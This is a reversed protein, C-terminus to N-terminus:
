EKESFYLKWGSQQPSCWRGIGRLYMGAEDMGATLSPLCLGMVELAADATNRLRDPQYPYLMHYLKLEGRDGQQNLGLLFPHYGLAALAGATEMDLVPGKGGCIRWVDEVPPLLVEPPPFRGHRDNGSRLAYYTKVTTAAGDELEAGLQIMTGDATGLAARLRGDVTMPDPTVPCDMRRYLTRVTEDYGDSRTRLKICIRWRGEGTCSIDSIRAATSNTLELRAALADLEPPMVIPAASTDKQYLRYVATRLADGGTTVSVCELSGDGSRGYEAVARRMTCLIQEM